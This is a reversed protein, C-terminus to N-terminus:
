GLAGPLGLSADMQEGRQDCVSDSSTNDIGSEAFMHASIEATLESGAVELPADGRSYATYTRERRSGRLLQQMVLQYVREEIGRRYTDFCEDVVEGVFGVLSISESQCPGVGSAHVKSGGSRNRTKAKKRGANVATKTKRADRDRGKTVSVKKRTM